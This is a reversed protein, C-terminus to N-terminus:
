STDNMLHSKLFVRLVEQKHVRDTYVYRTLDGGNDRASKYEAKHKLSLLIDHRKINFIKDSRKFIHPLSHEADEDNDANYNKRNIKYASNGCLCVFSFLCLLFIGIIILNIPAVEFKYKLYGRYADFLLNQCSLM